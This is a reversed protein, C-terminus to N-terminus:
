SPPRLRVYRAPGDASTPATGVDARRRDQRRVAERRRRAARDARTRGSARVRYAAGARPRWRVPQQV